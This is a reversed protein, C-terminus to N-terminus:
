VDRGHHVRRAKDRQSDCSGSQSREKSCSRVPVLSRSPPRLPRCSMPGNRVPAVVRAESIMLCDLCCDGLKVLDYGENLPHGASPAETCPVLVVGCSGCCTTNVADLPPGPVIVGQCNAPLRVHATRRKPAAILPFVLAACFLTRQAV